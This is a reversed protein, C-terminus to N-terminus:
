ILSKIKDNIEVLKRLKQELRKNRRKEEQIDIALKQEKERKKIQYKKSASLNKLIVKQKPDKEANIRRVLEEVSNKLIEPRGRGQRTSSSQSTEISRSSNPLAEGATSIDTLTEVENSEEKETQARTLPLLYMDLDDEDMEDILIYDPLPLEALLINNIM